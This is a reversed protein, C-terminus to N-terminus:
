SNVEKYSSLTVKVTKEKYERGDIYKVKIEVKEKARKNELIESMDAFSNIKKGDIETIINGVSLDAKDAGSDEVISKIYIGKPMDYYESYTDTIMYGMIGLYGREEDTLMKGNIIKDILESVDSIPIAFGMGEISTDTFNSSYKASNIGVVEGNSNILAGGSNGGNIAADIQIMNNSTGEISVERNLASIVGTTVSQGYGLANGIAIIGEGVKLNSSDGLTAIKISDLTEKDIDSIKITIVAIDRAKSKGLVTADVSKDNIFKVSLKDADEVVHYNTLIMLEKETENIIIGSGAGTSYEKDTNFGYNGTKLKTKSTIAVISPMVNDVVNSVDIIYTGDKTNTVTKTKPIEINTNNDKINTNVITEKQKKFPKKDYIIYGIILGCIIFLIIVLFKLQKITKEENMIDGYRNYM